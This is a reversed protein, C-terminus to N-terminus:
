YESLDSDELHKIIIEKINILNIQIIQYIIQNHGMM